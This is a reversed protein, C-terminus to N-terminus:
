RSSSLLLLLDISITSLSLNGDITDTICTDGGHDSLRTGSCGPSSKLEGGRV